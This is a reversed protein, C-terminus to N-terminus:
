RVDLVNSDVVEGLVVLPVPLVEVSVLVAGRFPVLVEEDVWDFDGLDVLVENEVFFHLAELRVLSLFYPVDLAPYEFLHFVYNLVHIVDVRNQSHVEVRVMQLLLFGIMNLIHHFAPPDVFLLFGLLQILVDLSDPVDLRSFRYILNHDGILGEVLFDVPLYQNFVHDTLQPSHVMLGHGRALEEKHGFDDYRVQDGVELHQSGEFFVVKQVQLFDKVFEVLLADLVGGLEALLILFLLTYLLQLAVQIGMELVGLFVDRLQFGLDLFLGQVSNLNLFQDFSLLFLQVPHLTLQLAM